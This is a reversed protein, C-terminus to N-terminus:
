YVVEYHKRKKAAIKIQNPFILFVEDALAKTAQDQPLDILFEDDVKQDMLSQADLKREFRKLVFADIIANKSKKGVLTVPRNPNLETKIKGVLRVTVYGDRVTPAVSELPEDSSSFTLLAMLANGLVLLFIFIAKQKASFKTQTNKM